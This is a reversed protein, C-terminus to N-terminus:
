LIPSLEDHYETNKDKLYSAYDGSAIAELKSTDWNYLYVWAMLQKGNALLVPFQVRIYEQPEPYYPSCEEYNDLATLIAQANGMQYIEGHVKDEPDQSEAAGPYGGIEYLRAQISGDCFYGGQQIPLGDGRFPMDKRLSGYVFLYEPIVQTKDNSHNGILM